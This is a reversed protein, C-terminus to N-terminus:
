KGGHHLNTRETERQDTEDTNMRPLTKGKRGVKKLQERNKVLYEIRCSQRRISDDSAKRLAFDVSSM